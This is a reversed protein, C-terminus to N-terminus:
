SARRRMERRIWLKAFQWDRKVTERSVGLVEATEELTLGGFFRLAVVEAHRPYGASLECLADDLAVVDPDPEGAPILAEDLSLKPTGGGRKEKHRARAADVLIRRMVRAAVAMFHARNQWRVRDIQILRIYAENVLATAQITQHPRERAMLGRAMRMLEHHVLPVLRDLAVKDGQGWALLLETPDPVPDAMQHRM